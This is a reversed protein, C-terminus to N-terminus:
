LLFITTCVQMFTAFGENLYLYDWWKMTVLNGFWQHSIEHAILTAVKRLQSPSSDKPDVILANERCTILGWNEMAGVSLRNLAVLDLKPLPYRKGFYHNFFELSRKAVELSFRGHERQGFPTFIKIDTRHNARNKVFDYQGIVICVLYTSMEKTWEFYDTRRKTVVNKERDMIPMNSIVMLYDDVTVQIAFIAKFDPEDFCPFCSRAETAAFMTAAGLRKNGDRDVYPNSYFGELTESLNAQFSLKIWARTGSDLKVDKFKFLTAM